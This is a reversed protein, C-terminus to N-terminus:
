WKQENFSPYTYHVKPASGIKRSPVTVTGVQEDPGLKPLSAYPPDSYGGQNQALTFFSIGARRM